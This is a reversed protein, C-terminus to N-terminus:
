APRTGLRLPPADLACHSCDTHEPDLAVNNRITLWAVVGGVAALGGALQTATHFGADFLAPQLYAEGTLGSLLPLLAVALLGAIRAVANNVASAVGAHRTDASALVTATMPAVTISMGLGFTVMAPLVDAVYSAGPGVRGLLLVGVGALIPGATMPLRPGIRQSLAGVRASLLLLVLSLPLTAAGSQLPSYGVVQQLEVVLLFIIGNLAGYVALTVLNAGSFQRSSFISLPLMPARRVAEAYFFGALALVGLAAAAVVLTSTSGVDPAEVLAYTTGGLGIAALAAGLGDVGPGAEPDATEPVHRASVMLVAAALPLNLLFIWRWTAAQILWGGVFPGIALAIGGLGSWAGIAGGRDDREFSAQIIALSGPTLLAGGLGQLVRAAILLSLSPALGCLVSAAAFVVVGSMFVRRRGYHDGLAGGLLIFASLTLLYGNLTWQLGSIGAGFDRGISPLAVNVVTADLAAM